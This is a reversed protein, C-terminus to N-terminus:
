GIRNWAEVVIDTLLKRVPLELLADDALLAAQVEELSQGQQRAAQIVGVIAALVHDETVPAASRPSVIQDSPATLSSLM